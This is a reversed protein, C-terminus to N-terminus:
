RPVGTIFAVVENALFRDAEVMMPRPDLVEQVQPVGWKMTMEIFLKKPDAFLSEIRIDAQPEDAQPSSPPIMLRIGGGLVPRGFVELEKQQCRLRTEWLFQFAHDNAVDYLQRITAERQMVQLPQGSWTASYGQYVVDAEDLFEDLTGSPEPALVALATAPGMHTLRVELGPAPRALMLGGQVMQTQNFVLGHKGLARQFDLAHAQDLVPQPMFVCGVGYHVTRRTHILM